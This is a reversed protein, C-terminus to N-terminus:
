EKRLLIISERSITKGTPTDWPILKMPINRFFSHEHKFGAKTGLEVSVKEMDLLRKRISRDGIVVCYYSGSKLVRHVEKLTILYDFFFPLADKVRNPDTKAFERLVKLATSSDLDNLKELIDKEAIAGLTNKNSDKIEQSLRLWAISLKSWRAYGITSKEEGYPPSTVAGDFEEECFPLNRADGRQVKVLNPEIKSARLRRVFQNMRSTSDILKTHFQKLVNPNFKSLEEEHYIRIFRSARLDINSTRFATDSLVLNLFDRTDEDQVESIEQYLFQLDVAVPEKFWHLLNHYIEIPPKPLNNRKKADIYKKHLVKYFTVADFGKKEFDIPTAKVKSILVALPNVDNGIARRNALQAEVLTTGSGCFPDLIKGKIPTYRDILREAIQPIMRAPYDHFGHTLYSTDAKAFSWDELTSKGDLTLQVKKTTKTNGTMASFRQGNV